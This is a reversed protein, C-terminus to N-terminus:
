EQVRYIWGDNELNILARLVTSYSVNYGTIIDRVTPLKLNKYKGAKIHQIILKELQEYKKSSPIM